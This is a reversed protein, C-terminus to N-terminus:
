VRHGACDLNRVIPLCFEIIRNQFQKVQAPDPFRLFHLQASFLNGDYASGHRIFVPNDPKIIGDKLFIFPVDISIIHVGTFQIRRVSPVLFNSHDHIGHHDHLLGIRFAAAIIHSSSFWAFYLRICGQDSIQDSSVQCERFSASHPLHEQKEM